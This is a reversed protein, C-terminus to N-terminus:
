FRSVIDKRNKVFPLIERRVDEDQLCIELIRRLASAKRICTIDRQEAYTKTHRHTELFDFDNIHTFRLNTRTFAALLLIFAVYAGLFPWSPILLLTISAIILYLVFSGRVSLKQLIASFAGQEERLLHRLRRTFRKPGPVPTPLIDHLCWYGVPIPTRGSLSCSLEDLSRAPMRGCVARMLRPELMANLLREMREGDPDLKWYLCLGDRDTLFWDPAGDPSLAGVYENVTFVSRNVEMEELSRAEAIFAQELAALEEEKTLGDMRELLGVMRTLCALHEERLPTSPRDLLGTSSAKNPSLM